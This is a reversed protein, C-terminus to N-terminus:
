LHVLGDPELLGHLVPLRGLGAGGSAFYTYSTATPSLGTGAAAVLSQSTLDGLGDYDDTTTGTGDTMTDISGDAYYTDTENSAAVYGSSHGGPWRERLPWRM